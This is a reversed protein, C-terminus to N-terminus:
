LRKVRTWIEDKGSMPIIYAFMNSTNKGLYNQLFYQLADLKDGPNISTITAIGASTSIGSAKDKETIIQNKDPTFALGSYLIMSDKNNQELEVIKQLLNRLNARIKDDQQLKDIIYQDAAYQRFPDLLIKEIFKNIIEDQSNSELISKVGSANYEFDTKPDKTVKQLNDQGDIMNQPFQYKYEHTHYNSYFLSKESSNLTKIEDEFYLHNAM